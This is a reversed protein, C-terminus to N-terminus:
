SLNVCVVRSKLWRAHRPLMHIERFLIVSTRPDGRGRYLHMVVDLPKDLPAEALALVTAAPLTSSGRWAGPLANDEDLILRYLAEDLGTGFDRWYRRREMRIVGSKLELWRCGEMYRSVGASNTNDPIGIVAHGFLLSNGYDVSM